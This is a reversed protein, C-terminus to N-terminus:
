STNRPINMHEKAQITRPPSVFSPPYATEQVTATGSTYSSIFMQFALLAVINVYLFAGPRSPPLDILSRGQLFLDSFPPSSLPTCEIYTLCCHRVTPSRILHYAAVTRWQSMSLPDGLFKRSAGSVCKNGLRIVSCPVRNYIRSHSNAGKWRNLPLVCRLHFPTLFM